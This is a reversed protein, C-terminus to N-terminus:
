SGQGELARGYRVGPAYGPADHVGELGPIVVRVVPVGIAPKTLDVVVVQELGAAHLRSLEHAVDEDLTDGEFTPADQHSREGRGERVRAIIREHIRPDSAAVYHAVGMDDRAGTILTLRTQAAETLARLLAVARSPHCGSGTGPLHPRMLGPDEDVITARFVPLGVDSTLEWAAVAVSARAFLELVSRCAPDDVTDLDVRTRRWGDEGRAHWLAAADREVIECIAHSVAEVLHNGSALGNSSAVLAGSGTPLPLTYATHVIEFPVWTSADSVLDHGEIWLFRLGDHLEGAALRPLRALDALRHSFRLENVSALLLPALIREAHWGEIAEMIASTKAAVLDLGKGPSVALSRANPRYAMAVPVGIRDLGTVDAVRTISMLPMLHRARAFTEEPAVARHTGRRFSKPVSPPRADM